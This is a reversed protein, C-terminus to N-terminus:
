LAYCLSENNVRDLIRKLSKIEVIYYSENRFISDRLAMSTYIIFFSANYERSISTYLTQSLIANLAMTKIFTSKGSANSGTILVSKDEDISNPVPDSLLPHYLDKVQILPKSSKVLKPQCYYDLSVRFSAVAICTDLYGINSYIRNIIPRNEKIFSLMSNFKIIDVHFLMRIYDLLTDLLSGTVNRSVM